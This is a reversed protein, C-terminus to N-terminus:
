KLLAPANLIEAARNSYFGKESVIQKLLSVAEENQKSRLLAQAKYFAAEQHFINNENELVKNFFEIAKPDNKLYYYSMGSYFQANVDHSNLELLGKLEYICDGYSAKSFQAMANRIQQHAYYVFEKEQLPNNAKDYKDAYQASVGSTETLDIKRDNKFYYLRYNTVKLDHIYIVPANPVFKLMLEEEPQVSVVNADVPKAELAEPTESAADLNEPSNQVSSFHERSYHSEAQPKLNFLTDNAAVRNNLSSTNASTEERLATYVSPHTKSRQFLVFFVSIGILLGCLLSIFAAGSKGSLGTKRDIRQTLDHLDQASVPLEELGASALYSLDDSQFKQELKHREAPGAKQYKSIDDPHIM